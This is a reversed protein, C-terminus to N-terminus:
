DCIFVIGISEIGIKVHFLGNTHVMERLVQCCSCVFPVPESPWVSLPSSDVRNLSETGFDTERQSDEANPENCFDRIFPDDLPDITEDIQDEYPPISSPYSFPIEQSTLDDLTPNQVALFNLIDDTFLADHPNNYPVISSPNEM